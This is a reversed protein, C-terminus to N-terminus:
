ALEAQPFKSFVYRASELQLIAAKSRPGWVIEGNREVSSVFKVVRGFRNQIIM